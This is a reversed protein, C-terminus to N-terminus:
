VLTQAEAKKLSRKLWKGDKKGNKKMKISSHLPIQLRLEMKNLNKM